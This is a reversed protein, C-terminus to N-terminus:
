YYSKLYVKVPIDPDTPRMLVCVMAPGSKGSKSGFHVLFM